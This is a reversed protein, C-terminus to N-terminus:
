TVRARQRVPLELQGAQQLHEPRRVRRRTGLAELRHKRRLYRQLRLALSMSLTRVLKNYLAPKATIPENASASMAVVIRRGDRRTRIAAHTVAPVSPIANRQPM